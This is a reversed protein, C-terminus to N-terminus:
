HQQKLMNFIEFVNAVTTPSATGGEWTKNVFEEQAPTLERLIKKKVEILQQETDVYQKAYPYLIAAQEPTPASGSNDLKLVGFFIQQPTLGSPAPTSRGGPFYSPNLSQSDTNARRVLMAVLQEEPRTGDPADSVPDDRKYQISDKQDAKLVAMAAQAFTDIVRDEQVEVFNADNLLSTLRNIQDLTLKENGVDGMHELSYYLVSTPLRAVKGAKELASTRTSPAPPATGNFRSAANASSKPTHLFIWGIFVFFVFGAAWSALTKVPPMSQFLVSWISEHYLENVPEDDRLSADFSLFDTSAKKAPKKKAIVATKQSEVLKATRAVKPEGGPGIIEIDHGARRPTEGTTMRRTQNEDSAGRPTPKYIRTSTDYAERKPVEQTSYPNPIAYPSPPKSTSPTNPLKGTSPNELPAPPKSASFLKRTEPSILPSPPKSAAPPPAGIPPPPKSAVVPPPEPAPPPPPEFMPVPPISSPDVPTEGLPAASIGAFSPRLFPPLSPASPPPPPLPVYIEEQVIGSPPEDQAEEGEEYEEDYEDDAEEEYEEEVPEDVPVAEGPRPAFSARLMPPLSTPVPPPAPPPSTPLLFSSAGLEGPAHGGEPSTPSQSPLPMAAGVKKVPLSEKKTLKTPKGTGRLPKDKGDFAM